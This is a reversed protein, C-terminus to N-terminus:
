AASEPPNSEERLWQFAKRGLDHQLDLPIGAAAAYQRAAEMGEHVLADTPQQFADRIRHTYQLQRMIDPDVSPVSYDSFQHLETM